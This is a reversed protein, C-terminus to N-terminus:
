KEVTCLLNMRYNLFNERNICDGFAFPKWQMGDGTLGRVDDSVDRARIIERMVDIWRKRPRSGNTTGEVMSSYIKKVWRDDAM